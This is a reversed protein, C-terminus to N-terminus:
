KCDCQIRARTLQPSRVFDSKGLSFNLSLVYKRTKIVIRYLVFISVSLSISHTITIGEGCFLSFNM